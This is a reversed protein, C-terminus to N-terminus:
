HTGRALWGSTNENTTSVVTENVFINAGGATPRLVINRLVLHSDAVTWLRVEDDISGQPTRSYVASISFPQFSSKASEDSDQWAGGVSNDADPHVLELSS